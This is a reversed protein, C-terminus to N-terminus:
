KQLNFVSANMFCCYVNKLSVYIDLSVYWTCLTPSSPLFFTQLPLHSYIFLIFPFPFLLFFFSPSNYLCHFHHLIVQTHYNVWNETESAWSFCFLFFYFFVFLFASLSLSSVSPLLSSPFPPFPLACAPKSGACGKLLKKKKKTKKCKKSREWPM